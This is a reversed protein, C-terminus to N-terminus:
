SRLTTIILIAFGYSTKIVISSPLGIFSIIVSVSFTAKYSSKFDKTIFKDRKSQCYIFCIKYIYILLYNSSHSNVKSLILERQQATPEIDPVSGSVSSFDNTIDTIRLKNFRQSILFPLSLLATIAAFIM